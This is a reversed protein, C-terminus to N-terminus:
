SILVDELNCGASYSSLSNMSSGSSKLDSTDFLELKERVIISCFTPQKPGHSSFSM